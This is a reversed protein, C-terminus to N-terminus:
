VRLETDVIHRESETRHIAQHAEIVDLVEGIEGEVVREFGCDNCHLDYVGQAPRHGADSRDDTM